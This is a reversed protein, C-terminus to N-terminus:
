IVFFNDGVSIRGGFKVFNKLWNLLRAIMRWGTGLTVWSVRLMLAAAAM